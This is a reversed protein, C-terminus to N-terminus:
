MPLFYIVIFQLLKISKNISFHDMMLHRKPANVYIFKNGSVM